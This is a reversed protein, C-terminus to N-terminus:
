QGGALAAVDAREMAAFRLAEQARVYAAADGREGAPYRLGELAQVYAGADGDQRAAQAMVEVARIDADAGTAPRKDVTMSAEQAGDSLLVTLSYPLDFYNEYVVEVQM